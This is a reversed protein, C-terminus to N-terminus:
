RNFLYVVGVLMREFLMIASLCPHRVIRKWKGDEIFVGIFRYYPSFQKKLAPHGAWKRRYSDFGHAYYAKKTLMRRLTLRRENHILNSKLVECEVGAALVRIDLEWDEGGAILAEDYGGVREM